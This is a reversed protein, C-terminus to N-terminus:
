GGDPDELFLMPSVNLVEAMLLLDAIRMTRESNEWRLLATPDVRRGHRATMREIDFKTLQQERRIVGVLPGIKGARQEYADDRTRKDRTM